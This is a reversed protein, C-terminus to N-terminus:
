LNKYHCNDKAVQVALKVVKKHTIPFKESLLYLSKREEEQKQRKEKKETQATREDKAISFEDPHTSELHKWLGKTSFSVNSSGAAGRRIESKCLDCVTLTNDSNKVTFFKWVASADRTRKEAM